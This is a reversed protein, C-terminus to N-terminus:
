RARDGTSSQEAEINLPPQRDAKEAQALNGSTACVLGMVGWLVMRRGVGSARMSLRLLAAARGSLRPLDPLPPQHARTPTM